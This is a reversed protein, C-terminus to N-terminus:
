KRYDGMIGQPRYLTFLILALGVAALRVSAMEVASIWPMADRLFRTGELVLMLLGSGVVAGSIRGTGGMIMAMWVLFTVLPTFGEPSIYTVYHAQMAGALGALGAGIMLVRLKFRAPDKGIARVADESDRIAQIMRGFPSRVLRLIVLVAAINVCVLLALYAPEAGVGVGLDLFPRPIATIGETGNTLWIENQIIIRLVESFALTVIALYHSGLRLSLIAVPYASLGGAVIAILMGVWIPAGALTVLASAYAGIAYFAVHGFNILGTFGYHLNLGLCLLLFILAQILVAVLYADM